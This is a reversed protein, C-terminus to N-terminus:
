QVKVEGYKSKITSVYTCSLTVSLTAYRAATSQTHVLWQLLIDVTLFINKYKSLHSIIIIKIRIITIITIKTIIIMKTTTTVIKSYDM